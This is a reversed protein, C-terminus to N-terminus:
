WDMLSKDKPCTFLRYLFLVAGILEVATGIILLINAFSQSNLRIAIGIVSIILGIVFIIITHKTQMPFLLFNIEKM